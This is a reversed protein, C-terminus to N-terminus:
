ARVLWVGFPAECHVCGLANVTADVYRVAVAPIIADIASADCVAVGYFRDAVKAGARVRVIM